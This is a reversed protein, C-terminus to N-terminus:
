SSPLVELIKKIDEYKEKVNKSKGEILLVFTGNETPHFYVINSTNILVIGSEIATLEIFKSMTM